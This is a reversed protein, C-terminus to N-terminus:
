WTVMDVCTPVFLFYRTSNYHEFFCGSFSFLVFFTRGKEFKYLM